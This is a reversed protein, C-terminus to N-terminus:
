KGFNLRDLEEISENIYKEHLEPTKVLLNTIHTKAQEVSAKSAMKTLIATVRKEEADIIKKANSSIGEVQKKADDLIKEGISHASTKAEKIMLDLESPLNEVSKEVEKLKQHAEEKNKKASEIMEVIKLHLSDIIGKVNIKRFIWFIIAAFIIFNFTNSEVIINWIQQLQLNIM